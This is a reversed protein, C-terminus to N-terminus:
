MPRYNIQANTFLPYHNTVLPNLSSVLRGFNGQFAEGFLFFLSYTQGIADSIGLAVEALLDCKIAAKM